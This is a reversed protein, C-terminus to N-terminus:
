FFTAFITWHASGNRKPRDAEDTPEASKPQTKTFVKALQESSWKNGKAFFDYTNDWDPGTGWGIMSSIIKTQGKGLDVFQIIEQLNQDEQRVKSTFAETLIVRLAIMEKEIYNIIPLRIAGRDNTSKTKDYQSRIEGGVRFDMSVVPTAWKKWGEETSFFKWAETKEVPIVLELRLVKEGNSTVYSTNKVDQAFLLSAFFLVLFLCCILRM